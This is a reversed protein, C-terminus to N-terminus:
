ISWVQYSHRSGALPSGCGECRNPSFEAVPETDNLTFLVDQNHWLSWTNDPGETPAEDNERKMTCDTCVEITGLDQSM